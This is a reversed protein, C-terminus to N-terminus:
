LEGALKRMLTILYRKTHTIDPEDGGKHKRISISLGSPEWTLTKNDNSFILDKQNM